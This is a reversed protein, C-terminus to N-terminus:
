QRKVESRVGRRITYLICIGLAVAFFVSSMNERMTLREAPEEGDIM